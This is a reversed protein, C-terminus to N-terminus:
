HFRVFKYKFSITGSLVLGNGTPEVRYVELTDPGGWSGWSSEIMLNGRGDAIGDPSTIEGLGPSMAIRYTAYPTLGSCSVSVDGSYAPGLWYDYSYQGSLKARGSASAEDGAPTLNASGTFLYTYTQGLAPSAASLAVVGLAIVIRLQVRKM